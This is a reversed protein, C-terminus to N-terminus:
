WWPRTTPDNWKRIRKPSVKGAKCEAVFMIFWCMYATWFMNWLHLIVSCPCTKIVNLAGTCTLMTTNVYSEHQVAVWSLMIIRGHEGSLFIFMWSLFMDHPEDECVKSGDDQTGNWKLTPHKRVNTNGLTHCLRFTPWVRHELITFGCIPM